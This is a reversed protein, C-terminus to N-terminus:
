VWFQNKLQQTIGYANAHSLVGLYSQLSQKFVSKDIKGVEYESFKKKLKKFIRRKTKSRLLRHNPFQVYGLFDIGQRLTRIEVKKPHLKLKLKEELFKSFESILNELYLFDASVIVFDDTYRIYNKIKLSQNVFQDFENMYINAFLQSTLNGLPIGKKRSLDSYPSSFSGIIEELLKVASDDKVRKKIISILIKHDVSDFFKRIDCKLIHCQITNNQSIKRAIRGLKDVGKHAGYGIRCSFSVPIFTEEFIPNIVAYVAHHLIRDRVSAKHIHRLKPDTIYFSEYGGHKYGGSKLDRRLQFINEELNWEFQLVDIKNRKDKKFENWALFLNEASIIKEFINKYIKM